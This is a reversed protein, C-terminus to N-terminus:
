TKKTTQDPVQRGDVGKTSQNVTKETYGFDGNFIILHGRKMSVTTDVRIVLFVNHLISSAVKPDYTRLAVISSTIFLLCTWGEIHVIKSYCNPECSHNIFRAASGMVTADVVGQDDMRFM